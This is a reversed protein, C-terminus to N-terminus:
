MLMPFSHKMTHPVVYLMKMDKRASDLDCVGVRGNRVCVEVFQQYAAATSADITVAMMSIFRTGRAVLQSTLRPLVEDFLLTCCLRAFIVYRSWTIM